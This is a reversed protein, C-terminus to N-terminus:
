RRFSSRYIRNMQESDSILDKNEKQIYPSLIERLKAGSEPILVKEAALIIENPPCFETIQERLAARENELETELEQLEKKLQQIKGEREEIDITHSVNNLYELDSKLERIRIVKEPFQRNHIFKPIRSREQYAVKISAEAVKERVLTYPITLSTKASHSNQLEGSALVIGILNMYERTEYPEDSQLVEEEKTKPDYEFEERYLYFPLSDLKDSDVYKELGELLLATMANALVYDNLQKARNGFEIIKKTNEYSLKMYNM